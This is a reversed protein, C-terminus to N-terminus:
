LVLVPALERKKFVPSQDIIEGHEEHITRLVELAACMGKFLAEEYGNKSRELSGRWEGAGVGTRNAGFPILAELLAAEMEGFEQFSYQPKNNPERSCWNNKNDNLTGCFCFSPSMPRIEDKFYADIIKNYQDAFKPLTNVTNM